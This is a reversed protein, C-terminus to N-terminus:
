LLNKKDVLQRLRKETIPGIGYYKIHSSREGSYLRTFIDVASPSAFIMEKIKGTQPLRIKKNPLVTYHALSTHRYNSQRLFNEIVPRSIASKLYLFVNNPHAIRKILVTVEESTPQDPYLCHFNGFQELRNGTTQGILIYIKTKLERKTVGFDKVARKLFIKLSDRSTLIIHSYEYFKSFAKKILPNKSSYPAIQILPIHIAKYSLAKAANLGFYIRM